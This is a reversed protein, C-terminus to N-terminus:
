AIQIKKPPRPKAEEKKPILIGLVGDTYSAEIKDSDVTEPLTFSRNFATYSFERRTYNAENIEDEKRKEASITLIDNEIDIKFDSKKMGPVALEILFENDNDQINIAPVNTGTKTRGPMTFWDDHAFSDWMSPLIDNNRKMLKM